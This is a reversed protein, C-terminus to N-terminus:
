TLLLPDKMCYSIICCQTDAYLYTFVYKAQNNNYTRIMHEKHTACNYTGVKLTSNLDFYKTCTKSSKYIPKNLPDLIKLSKKLVYYTTFVLWLM